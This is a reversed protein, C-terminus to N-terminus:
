RPMGIMGGLGAIGAGPTGGRRGGFGMGGNMRIMGMGGMGMGPGGFGGMGGMGAMGMGGMGAMSMGGGFGSMSGGGQVPFAGGAYGMPRGPFGIHSPATFSIGGFGSMLGGGGSARPVLQSRNVTSSDSIGNTFNFGALSTTSGSVQSGFGGSMKGFGGMSGGSGGFGQAGALGPALGALTLAVLYRAHMMLGGEMPDEGAGRQQGQCEMAPIRDITSIFHFTNCATEGIWGQVM